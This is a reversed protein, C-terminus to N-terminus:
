LRSTQLSGHRTMFRVLREPQMEHLSAPKGYFHHFHSLAREVPHRLAVLGFAVEVPTDVLAELEGPNSHDAVIKLEDFYRPDDAYTRITVDGPRNFGPVHSQEDRYEDRSAQYIARRLSMGACKEIHFFYLDVSIMTLYPAM